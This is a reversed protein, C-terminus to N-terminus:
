IDLNDSLYTQRLVIRNMRWMTSSATDGRKASLQDSLWTAALAITAAVLLGPYTRHFFARWDTWHPRSLSEIAGSTLGEM